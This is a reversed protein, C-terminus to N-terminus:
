IVLLTVCSWMKILNRRMKNMVNLCFAIVDDTNIPEEGFFSLETGIMSSEDSGFSCCSLVVFAVLLTPIGHCFNNDARKTKHSM